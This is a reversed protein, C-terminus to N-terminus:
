SHARPLGVSGHEKVRAILEAIIGEERREHADQMQRELELADVQMFMRNRQRLVWRVASDRQVVVDQVRMCGVRCGIAVTIGIV